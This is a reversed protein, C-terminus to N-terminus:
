RQMLYAQTNAAAYQISEIYQRQLREQSSVQPVSQLPVGQRKAKEHAYRAELEPKASPWVDMVWPRQEFFKVFDTAQENHLREGFVLDPAKISAEALEDLYREQPDAARRRRREEVGAGPKAQPFKEVLWTGIKQAQRAPWSLEKPTPPPGHRVRVFRHEPQPYFIKDGIVRRGFDPPHQIGSPYVSAAQQMQADYALDAETKPLLMEAPWQPQMDMKAIESQPPVRAKPLKLGPPIQPPLHAELKAAVEEAIAQHREETREKYTAPAQWEYKEDSPTRSLRGLVAEVDKPMCGYTHYDRLRCVRETAQPSMDPLVTNNLNPWLTTNCEMWTPERGECHQFELSWQQALKKHFWKLRKDTPSNKERMPIVGSCDVQPPLPVSLAWQAIHLANRASPMMKNVYGVGGMGQEYLADWFPEPEDLKAPVADMMPCKPCLPNVVRGTEPHYVYETDLDILFGTKNDLVRRSPRPRSPMKISQTHMPSGVAPTHTPSNMAPSAVTEVSAPSVLQPPSMPEPTYHPSAQGASQQTQQWQQSFQRALQRPDTLQPHTSSVHNQYYAQDAQIWQQSQHTDTYAGRHEMRNTKLDKRYAARRAQRSPMKLIGKAPQKSPPPPSEPGVPLPDPVFPRVAGPRPVFIRPEPVPDLADAIMAEDNFTVSKPLQYEERIIDDDRTPFGDMFEHFPKTIPEILNRFASKFGAFFGVTEAGDEGCCLHKFRRRLQPRPDDSSVDPASSGFPSNAFPTPPSPPVNATVVMNPSKVLDALHLLTRVHM